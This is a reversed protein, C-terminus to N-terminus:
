AVQLQEARVYEPDPEGQGCDLFLREQARFIAARAERVAKLQPCDERGCHCQQESVLTWRKSNRPSM